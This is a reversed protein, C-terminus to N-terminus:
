NCHEFRIICQYVHDYSNPRCWDFRNASYDFREVTRLEERADMNNNHNVLYYPADFDPVRSEM